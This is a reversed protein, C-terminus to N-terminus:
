KAINWAAFISGLGLMQVVPEAAVAWIIGKVTASIAFMIFVIYVKM